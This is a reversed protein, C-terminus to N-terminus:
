NLQALLKEAYEHRYSQLEEPVESLKWKLVLHQVGAPLDPTATESLLSHLEQGFWATDKIDGNNDRATWDRALDKLRESLTEM